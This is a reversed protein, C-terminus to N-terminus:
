TTLYDPLQTLTFILFALHMDAPLAQIAFRGVKPLKHLIILITLWLRPSMPSYKFQMTPKCSVCTLSVPGDVVVGRLDGAETTLKNMAICVRGPM